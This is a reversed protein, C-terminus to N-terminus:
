ANEFFLDDSQHDGLLGSFSHSRGANILPMENTMVPHKSDTFSYSDGAQVSISYSVVNYRYPNVMATQLQIQLM